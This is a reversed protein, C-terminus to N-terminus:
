SPASPRVRLRTEILTFLSSKGSGWPAFLAVNIPLEAECCLDALRDAIPGYAFEDSDSEKLARDPILDGAVIPSPM